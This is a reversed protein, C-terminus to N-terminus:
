RTLYLGLAYSVVAILFGTAMFLSSFDHGYNIFSAGNFAAAMIGLWGFVASIIYARRRAAIALALLALSALFLSLGIIVHVRLAVAGQTVAWFIGQVVGSFYENANTGPHADPIQIFLNVLMGALFQIALLALTLATVIRFGRAAGPGDSPLSAGRAVSQAVEQM